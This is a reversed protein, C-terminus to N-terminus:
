PLRPLNILGCGSIYCHLTNIGCGVSGPTTAVNCALQGTPGTVLLAGNCGLFTGVSYVTCVTGRQDCSKCVELRGATDPRFVPPLSSLPTSLPGGTRDLPYPPGQRRVAQSQAGTQRRRDRKYQHRRKTKTQRRLRSLGDTNALGLDQVALLLDTDSHQCHPAVQSCPLGASGPFLM